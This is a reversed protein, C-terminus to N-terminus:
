AEPEKLWKVEAPTLQVKLADFSTRTEEITRPGILPFTPFPQNLVYALAIVGGVMVVIAAAYVALPWLPEPQIVGQPM